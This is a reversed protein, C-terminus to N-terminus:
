ERRRSRPQPRTPIEKLLGGVGMGAIDQGKVPIGCALRALVWDAGNLAPSRACGPLGIVPRPGLAGLFLLNGPDVPMGFHELQGGALALGSPAVDHIDSTASGTLVLVLDEGAAAIAESLPEAEHPVLVPGTMEMGLATLRARVAEAGKDGPGGRIETVILRATKLVPPHLRIAPPGALVQRAAALSEGAVAYAIVKVTAVMGGPTMQQHDPVTALTLMPDIRNLANLRDADLTVIGPGEAILNVRGTFARTLRLGQGAPDPVLAEAVTQAAADEAVDGPDLRAVIVRAMGLDRLTDVDAATLVHGKSLRGRALRVSHALMAGEAENLPVPGFRM